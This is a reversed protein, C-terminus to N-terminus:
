LKQTQLELTFKDFLVDLLWNQNDKLPSYNIIQRNSINSTKNLFRYDSKNILNDFNLWSPEEYRNAPFYLLCNSDILQKLKETENQFNPEFLSTDNNGIRRWEKNAPTYSYFEEYKNKSRDLQWELLKLDEEFVLKSRSYSHGNKIYSPSRY